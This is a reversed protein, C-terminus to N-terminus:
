GIGPPLALGPIISVHPYIIHRRSGMIVQKASSGPGQGLGMPRRHVDVSRGALTVAEFRGQGGFFGSTGIADTWSAASWRAGSCEYSSGRGTHRLAQKISLTPAV